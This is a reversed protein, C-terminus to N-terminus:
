KQAHRPQRKRYRRLFVTQQQICMLSGSFDFPQCFRILVRSMVARHPVEDSPLCEWRSMVARHSPLCEWCSSRISGGGVCVSRRETKAPKCARGSTQRGEAQRLAAPVCPARRPRQRAAGGGRIVGGEGGRAAWGRQGGRNRRRKGCWHPARRSCLSSSPAAFAFCASVYASPCSRGPVVFFVGLRGRNRPTAGAAGVGARQPRVWTGSATVRPLAPPAPGAPRSAGPCLAEPPPAASGGPAPSTGPVAAAAAPFPAAEAPERLRQTAPRRRPPARPRGSARGPGLRRRGLVAGSRAPLGAGPWGGGRRVPRGAGGPGARHLDLQGGGGLHSRPRRAPAAAM